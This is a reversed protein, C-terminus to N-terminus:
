PKQKETHVLQPRHDGPLKTMIMEQITATLQKRAEETPMKEAMEMLFNIQEKAVRFEELNAKSEELRTRAELERFLLERSRGYVAKMVVLFSRAQARTRDWFAM